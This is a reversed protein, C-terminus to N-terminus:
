TNITNKILINNNILTTGKVKFMRKNLCYQAKHNSKSCRMCLGNLQHRNKEEQTMLKFRIVNIQVLDRQDQIHSKYQLHLLKLNAKEDLGSQGKNGEL